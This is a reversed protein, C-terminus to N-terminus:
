RRQGMLLLRPKGKAQDPSLEAAKAGGNNNLQRQRDQEFIHTLNLQAPTVYTSLRREPQESPGAGAIDRGSLPSSM